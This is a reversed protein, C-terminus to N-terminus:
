RGSTDCYGNVSIVGDESLRIVEVKPPSGSLSAVGTSSIFGSSAALRSSASPMHTRTHFSRPSTNRGSRMVVSTRDPTTQELFARPQAGTRVPLRHRCQSGCVLGIKGIAGAEVIRPDLHLRM